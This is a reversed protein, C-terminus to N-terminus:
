RASGEAAALLAIGEIEVLYGGALQVGVTSRAPRHDGMAESYAANFEAFSDVSTLFCTTKILSELSGGAARLVADLNAIAQRTQAEVGEATQGSAPDIGVQGALVVLEGARVAQSYAGGPPPADATAILETQM